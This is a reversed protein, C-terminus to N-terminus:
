PKEVQEGISKRHEVNHVSLNEFWLNKGPYAPILIGLSASTCRISISLLPRDGGQAEASELFIQRKVHTKSDLSRSPDTGFLLIQNLHDPAM